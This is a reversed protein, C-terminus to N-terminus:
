RSLTTRKKVGVSSKRQNEAKTAEAIAAKIIPGAEKQIRKALYRGPVSPSMWRSPDERISKESIVFFGRMAQASIRGPRAPRSLRRHAEYKKMGGYRALASKVMRPVGKEFARTVSAGVSPPRFTAKAKPEVHIVKYKFGAKSRKVKAGSLIALGLNFARHGNEVYEAHKAYNVIKIKGGQVRVSGAAYLGRVYAGSGTPARAVWLDRVFLALNWLMRRTNHNRALEPAFDFEVSVPM